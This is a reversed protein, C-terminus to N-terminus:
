SSQATRQRAAPDMYASPRSPLAERELRRINPEQRQRTSQAAPRGSRRDVKVGYIREVVEPTLDADRGDFVIQGKAMGIIRTAYREALEIQHLNVIVPIGQTQQIHQLTTMVTEASAPDLSAVPEDALFVYPEQALARAIAVRQQQGGSLTDARQFALHEIRVKKMCEFAVDRENPPFKKLLSLLNWLPGRCHSLRGAMVNELVTLRPVLNFQQFIMGVRKRVQQLKKGSVHAIDRGNLKIRGSTPEILRNLCRLLTSKGAGSPGLIITLEQQSASFSVQNVARTGNPYVKTLAVTDIAPQM